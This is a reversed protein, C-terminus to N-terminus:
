RTIAGTVDLTVAATLMDDIPAAISFGSVYAAYSWETSSTDTFVSKFNRLTDNEYDTLLGEHTAQAPDFLIDFSVQGADKFSPRRERYGGSSAHHTADIYERGITPGDINRINAIAAFTESSAGDGRQVASGKAAFSSM